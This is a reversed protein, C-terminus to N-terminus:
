ARVQKRNSKRHEMYETRIRDYEKDSIQTFHNIADGSWVYSASNSHKWAFRSNEKLTQKWCVATYDYTTIRRGQRKKNVRELLEKMSFPHTQNPDTKQIVVQGNAAPSVAVVLDASTMKKVSQLNIDYYTAVRAVDSGAEEAQELLGRLEDLFDQVEAVVKTNSDVRMFRVSEAPATAGLPLLQWTITTAIDKKFRGLMFDRYNLINQQLFPYILAGLGRANYLHIARDRYETLAKVNTSIAHGDVKDSWLNHANVRGIADDITISRYREGRKKPYFISRNDQRLTAKLALEWANVVLIVTVEDRYTTQPKNYIEIASLMAALSNDVLRRQSVYPASM